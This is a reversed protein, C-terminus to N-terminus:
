LKGWKKMIEEIIVEGHMGRSAKVFILDGEKIISNIEKALETNKEFHYTQKDKVEESIFRSDNGWTVIVDFDTQNLFRGVERHMEESFEGLELMDGIIAVKRGKHKVSSFHKIVRKLAEPNSNYCDNFLLMPKKLVFRGRNEIPKFTAVREVIKELPIEALLATLVSAAVNYCNHEGILSTKFEFEKGEFELRLISNEIGTVCSLIKLDAGEGKGFSYKVGVARDVRSKVLIDDFNYVVITDPTQDLLIEAKAERVEEISGFNGIHAPFVNLWVRIDPKLIEVLKKIEGKYSMGLEAIFFDINQNVKNLISLPLGLTNNFNGVTARTKYYDKFIHYTLEKTTTKGASGTIAVSNKVRQKVLNRAAKQLASVTDGVFFLNEFADLDISRRKYSLLYSSAGKRKADEIFNHGDNKETRVAIFMEGNKLKRSDISFGTIEREKFNYAEKEVLKAFESVKM